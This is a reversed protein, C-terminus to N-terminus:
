KLLLKALGRLVIIAFFLAFIAIFYFGLWDRPAFVKVDIWKYLGYFLALLFSVSTVWFLVPHVSVPADGNKINDEVEQYGREFAQDDGKGSIMLSRGYWYISVGIAIYILVSLGGFFGAIPWTLFTGIAALFMIM